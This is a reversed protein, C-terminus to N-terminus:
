VSGFPSVTTRDGSLVVGVTATVNPVFDSRLIFDDAAGPERVQELV